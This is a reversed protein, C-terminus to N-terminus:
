SRNDLDDSEFTSAIDPDTGPYWLSTDVGNLIGSLQDARARLLGDLAMGAEPPQIEVAYNPSDTTIRDAFLLGAKLFGITGYYEVGDITFSELPLGIASLMERPFQGQYALNHITM